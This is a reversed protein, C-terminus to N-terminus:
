KVGGIWFRTAPTDGPLWKGHLQVANACGRVCAYLNNNVQDRITEAGIKSRCRAVVTTGVVVYWHTNRYTKKPRM